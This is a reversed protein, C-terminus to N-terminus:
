RKAGSFPVKPLAGDDFAGVKGALDALQALEDFSALTLRVEQGEYKALLEQLDYTKARGGENIMIHFRGVIPDYEVIGELLHGLM